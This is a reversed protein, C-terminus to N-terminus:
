SQVPDINHTMLGVNCWCQINHKNYRVCQTQQLKCDTCQDMVFEAPENIIHEPCAKDTVSFVRVCCLRVYTIVTQTVIPDVKNDM